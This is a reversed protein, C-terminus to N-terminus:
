PLAPVVEVAHKEGDPVWDESGDLYILHFQVDYWGETEYTDSDPSFRVIGTKGGSEITCALTVVSGGDRPQQVYHVSSVQDLPVARGDQQALKYRRAKTSGRTM